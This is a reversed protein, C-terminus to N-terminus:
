KKNFDELKKELLHKTKYLTSLIFAQKRIIIIGLIILALLPLLAKLISTWHSATTNGEYTLCFNDGSLQYRCLSKVNEDSHLLRSADRDSLNQTKLSKVAKKPTITITSSEDENVTVFTYTGQIKKNSSSFAFMDNFTVMDGRFVSNKSSYQLSSDKLINAIDKSCEEVSGNQSISLLMQDEKSLTVKSITTGVFSDKLCALQRKNCKSDFFFTINRRIDDKNKWVTLIDYSSIPQSLSSDFSIKKQKISENLQKKGDFTYTVPVKGSEQILNSLDLTEHYKLAFSFPNKKKCQVDYTGVASKSHLISRTTAALDTFNDETFSFSLIKGNKWTTWKQSYKSFYSRINGSNQDLTKQPIYFSITRKLTGNKTTNTSIKVSSLPAYQMEDISVKDETEYSKGSFSITTKKLNWLADVSQKDVYKKEYLATYLWAMLDKSSFNEKYILGNVFPSDGYQYSIEPAFNLITEAKEKYDKLSSFHLTFTYVTQNGKSSKKYTLHTPCSEEIVQDLDEATGKFFRVFESSSFTCSMTRTGSFDKQLKVNSTLEVGCSCLFTLSLLFMVLLCKKKM